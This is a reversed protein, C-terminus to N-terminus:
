LSKLFNLFIEEGGLPFQQLASCANEWSQVSVKWRETDKQHLPAPQVWIFFSTRASDGILQIQWEGKRPRLVFLATPSWLTLALSRKNMPWFLKGFLQLDALFATSKLATSVTDTVIISGNRDKMNHKNLSSGCLVITLLHQLCVSLCISLNHLDSFTLFPTCLQKMKYMQAFQKTQTHAWTNRNTVESMHM